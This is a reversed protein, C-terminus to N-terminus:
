EGCLLDFPNGCDCWDAALVALDNMDATGQQWAVALVAFDGFDVYCDLRYDGAFSAECEFVSFPDDSVDGVNHNAGDVVRILCHDSTVEPAMMLLFNADEVTSISSWSDGNDTSCQVLYVGSSEQTSRSDDWSVLIQSGALFSEGGNPADVEIGPLLSVEFPISFIPMGEGECPRPPLFFPLGEPYTGDCYFVWQGAELPGFQGVLGCVPDWYMLCYGGVYEFWLQVTKADNDITINPMGLAVEACGSNSYVNTPGAFGIVDTVDPEIPSIGWEFSPPMTGGCWYVEASLVQGCAIFLVAIVAVCSVISERKM